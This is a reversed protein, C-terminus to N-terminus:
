AGRRSSTHFFPPIAGRMILRPGLPPSHDANCGPRKVGMSLADPVWEIPPQNSGLASRSATTYLFSGQGQRFDFGPRGTRLKTVLSVWIVRSRWKVYCLTRPSRNVKRYRAGYKKFNCKMKQYHNELSSMKRRLKAKTYIYIMVCVFHSVLEKLMQIQYKVDGRQLTVNLWISSFIV